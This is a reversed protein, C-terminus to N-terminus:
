VELKTPLTLHTYSVPGIAGAESQMEVVKPIEGFINKKGEGSWKDISEPMPTSPTIPYIGALETFLYSARSCAENGDAIIQKMNMGGIKSM